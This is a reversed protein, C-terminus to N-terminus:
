IKRIHAEPSEMGEHEFSNQDDMNRLYELADEEEMKRVYAEIASRILAGKSIGLHTSHNEIETYMTPTFLVNFVKELPERSKLATPTQPSTTM